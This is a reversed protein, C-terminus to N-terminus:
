QNEIPIDICTCYYITTCNFTVLVGYMNIGAYKVIDFHLNGVDFTSTFHSSPLEEVDVCFVCLGNRKNGCWSLDSKPVKWLM